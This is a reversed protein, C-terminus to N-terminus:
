ICIFGELYVSKFPFNQLQCLGVERLMGGRKQNIKLRASKWKKGWYREDRMGYEEREPFICPLLTSQM